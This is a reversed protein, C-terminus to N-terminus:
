FKGSTGNGSSHMSGSSHNEQKQRRTRNVTHYLYIDSRNTLRFSGQQLYAGASDQLVRTNMGKKWSLVVILAIVFSLVAAGLIVLVPNIREKYHNSESYIKGERADAMFIDAMDLYTDFADYYDGDSLDDLIEEGIKERVYAGFIREAEGYATIGWDREAMSIGLMLSSNKDGEGLSEEEFLKREWDLIDSGEFRDTTIIVTSVGYESLIERSKEELKEEESETLLEAGDRVWGEAPSASAEKPVAAEDSSDESAKGEYSPIFCICLCMYAFLVLYIKRRGQRGNRM